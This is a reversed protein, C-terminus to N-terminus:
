GGVVEAAADTAFDPVFSSVLGWVLNVQTPSLVVIDGPRALRMSYLTAEGEEVIRHVHEVAMGGALAGQTMMANIEGRPRGRGDPTERFVLEDFISAALVGMGILDADRRDGPVSFTGIIRRGPRRLTALFRGLAAVAAPNHAYDVILTIGHRDVINLRAPNDAFSTAFDSLAAAITEPGVGLAAGIAVAALANETNFAAAGNLTAPIAAVDIVPTKVSGQYLMIHQRDDLIELIVAMGGSAVHAEVLEQWGRMSFWCLQGRARRAMKVTLPDDANLVSFGRRAVAEIVVSKVNALDEVTDIGKIGMHDETVNLVCGVDCRDFGLGERLIGGRATELVAADVTPNTLVMRASKPGSADAARVLRDGIYVGSTNTLGVTWGHERLIRAVMRATTSKGNTGTIAVVPIRSRHSRPFLLDVIPGAVDRAQGSSPSLHMRLGPAANVEIIGGGTESLPRSIDPSLLDIGAVDLGVIAAAQEAVAITDPHVQDTCDEATGGTSLNATERLRAVEGPAPVSQADFGQAALVREVAPDIVLRTLVNDHGVGRRPDQNERAVLMSIDSTGDGTVSAPMRRAAAIVKGGVVLFRHDDGSLQEEVIVRPSHARAVTFADALEADTIINLTVGRGHNADLPKVVLPRALRAADRRADDLTRAVVGKPAPVGAGLLLQRTLHKDGALEVAVHSTQGTLSARVRRQRRGYGLQILSREDLRTVPIGRRRAADVIAQTSPGYASKRLASRIAAVIADIDGGHDLADKVLVQEGILSSLGPPLLRMVVRLAHLGALLGAQEDRYDFLIDYVGPHRAVSRTKGRTVPAGALNQLELAVHETVHGLWTGEALREVLGGPQGRSCHHQRLGPLLALLAQSFGPLTDTPRDELTGLDVRMRIMPRRSFINPGRYIARELITLTNRREMNADVPKMTAPAAFLFDGM